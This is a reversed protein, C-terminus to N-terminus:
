INICISSQLIYLWSTCIFAHYVYCSVILQGIQPQNWEIDLKTPVVDRRTLYEEMLEQRPFHEDCLAKKRLSIENLM